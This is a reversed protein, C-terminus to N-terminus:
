CRSSEQQSGASVTSCTCASSRQSCPPKSLQGRGTHERARLATMVGFAGFLGALIDAMPLGIRQPDGGPQGTLSMLGAEAQVIQDFGPAHREPGGSGFGTISLTVLRPNARRLDAPDVGLRAMLGPRYNEM